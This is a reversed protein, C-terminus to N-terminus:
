LKAESSARLVPASETAASTSPAPAELVPQVDLLPSARAIVKGVIAASTYQATRQVGTRPQAEDLVVLVVFQPRSAPFVAAFSTVNRDPDYGDPGPKEATGTKGAVDYGPANAQTGTGRTVVERMMAVVAHATAPSMVQRKEVKAANVPEVLTPQVYAGDNGFPLFAAAFALPSVAIGHGYSVTASTLADWESPTLPAAAPPGDYSLRGLLGVSGLFGKQKEAGLRQSIEVAGINSSYALIDAPTVARPHDPSHGDKIVAAGIKLPQSVDFLDQPKLAGAEMAAAVTLPKYISGLEFVSGIARNPKAKEERETPRNPDIAPWSAIARIAGTHTDIVMGAGGQMDFDAYAKQLEDELVFQVSADITLKLAEGGRKLRDQFAAEVGEVGKGDVNTFGLLHGALQGRPYVRRQEEEFRLGELGLNFVAEKQRPSLGREVWVFHRDRDSLRKALENVKIDPLVKALEHATEKADWIARPDAALSWAQLSTALVDGKRDVIDARRVQVEQAATEAAAPGNFAVYASRGVIITFVVALAGAVIRARRPGWVDEYPRAGFMM